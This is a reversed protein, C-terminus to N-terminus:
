PLTDLDQRELLRAAKAHETGLNAHFRGECSRSLKRSWLIAGPCAFCSVYKLLLHSRIAPIDSFLMSQYIGPSLSQQQDNPLVALSHPCGRYGSGAARICMCFSLYCGLLTLVPFAQLHGSSILGINLRDVRQLCDSRGVDCIRKRKAIRANLKLM